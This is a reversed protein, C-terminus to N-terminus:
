TLLPKNITLDLDPKLADTIIEYPLIRHLRYFLMTLLHLLMLHDPHKQSHKDSPEDAPALMIRPNPHGNENLHTQAYYMLLNNLDETPKITIISCLAYTFGPEEDNPNLEDEFSRILVRGASLHNHEQQFLQAAEITNFTPKNFQQQATVVATNISVKPSTPTRPLGLAQALHEGQAEVYTRPYPPLVSGPPLHQDHSELLDPIINTIDYNVQNTPVRSISTPHHALIDALLTKSM